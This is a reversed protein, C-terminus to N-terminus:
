AEAKGIPGNEEKVPVIKPEAKAKAPKAKKGLKKEANKKQVVSLDAKKAGRRRRGAM